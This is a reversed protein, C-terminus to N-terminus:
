GMMGRAVVVRFQGFDFSLDCYVRILWLFFALYMISLGLILPFIV